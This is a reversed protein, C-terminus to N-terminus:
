ENYYVEGDEITFAAFDSMYYDGYIDDICFAFFYDGDERVDYTVEPTGTFTYEAGYYFFEDDTELSYAYYLPTIVDGSQLKVIDRSLAGYENVGDWAGEIVIEGASYDLKIRLNTEEGNLLIPSTYITYDDTDEVIYTAINQGDPLSIWWGDFDDAFRGTSWGGNLDYTEGLEIIDEGDYSLQYVIGYVDAAANYGEDDFEFWFSGDDDM